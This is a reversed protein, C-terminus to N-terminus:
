FIKLDQSMQASFIVWSHHENIFDDMSEFTKNIRIERSQKLGNILALKARRKPIAKDKIKAFGKLSCVLFHAVWRKLIAIMPRPAPM